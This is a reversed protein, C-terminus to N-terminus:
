RERRDREGKRVGRKEGKGRVRKQGKIIGRNM